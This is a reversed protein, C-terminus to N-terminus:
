VTIGTIIMQPPKMNALRIFFQSRPAGDFRRVVVLFAAWRRLSKRAPAYM